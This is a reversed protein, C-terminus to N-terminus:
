RMPADMPKLGSKTGTTRYGTGTVVVQQVSEAAQQEQAGAM